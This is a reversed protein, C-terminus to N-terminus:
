RQRSSCSSPRHTLSQKLQRMKAPKRKMQTLIILLLRANDANGALVGPQSEAEWSAMVYQLLGLELALSHDNLDEMMADALLQKARVVWVRQRDSM